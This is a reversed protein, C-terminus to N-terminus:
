CRAAGSDGRLTWWQNGAEDSEDDVPLEELQDRLWARAREWTDTWAVRQAGNEDGTLERLERLEDVTRTRDGARLAVGRPWSRAGRDRRSSRLRSRPVEVTDAPHRTPSWRGRLDVVKPFHRGGHLDSQRSPRPRARGTPPPRPVPVGDAPRSRGRCSCARAPRRTSGSIFLLDGVRFGQSLRFPEYPDPEVRIQEMDM